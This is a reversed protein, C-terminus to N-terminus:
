LQLAAVPEIQFAISSESLECIRCGQLLACVSSKKDKKAVVNSEGEVGVSELELVAKVLLTRSM